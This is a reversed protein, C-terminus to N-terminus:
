VTAGRGAAVAQAGDPRECTEAAFAPGTDDLDGPAVPDLVEAIVGGGAVRDGDYFVVAQGPTIARQPEEFWVEVADQRGVLPRVVAPAEPSKYRVRATVRAEGALGPWSVWNVEVARLGRAYTATDPGVILANKEPLIRVVYMPRDSQIGLGRRQGVTYYALGRHTGVRRGRTDYIPGPRIRDGAREELFRRHDNDKVFCIEQSEPKRATVLGYAEALQRVQSKEFRGIPLLTRALQEQTFNYLVYTQDKRRDASKRLIFRGLAEDYEVIAYHGTAVYDCGLAEARRLFEDFKIYRNCAICPNPTRGQLYEAVFYDIVKEEFDQRMNMVYYPIGLREAVRRADDVASLSCCGGYRAEDEPEMAPWTQMTVGIVEYGQDRLLAAMVSSDVGGSMAALVRGKRGQSM